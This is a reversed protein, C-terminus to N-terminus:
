ILVWWDNARYVLGLSSLACFLKYLLTKSGVCLDVYMAVKRFPQFFGSFRAFRKLWKLGNLKV